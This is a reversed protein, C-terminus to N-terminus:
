GEWEELLERLLDRGQDIARMAEASGGRDPHFRRALRSHWTELLREWRRALPGDDPERRSLEEEVAKSLPPLLGFGDLLWRLYDTPIKDLRRGRYKGFPMRM